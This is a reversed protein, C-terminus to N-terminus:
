PSLAAAVAAATRGGAGSDGGGGSGCVDGDVIFIDYSYSFVFFDLYTSKNRKM